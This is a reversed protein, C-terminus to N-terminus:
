NTQNTIPHDQWSKEFNLINSVGGMVESLPHTSPPDGLGYFRKIDADVRQQTIIM